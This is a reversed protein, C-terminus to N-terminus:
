SPIVIKLAKKDNNKLANVLTNWEKRRRALKKFDGAEDQSLNNMMEVSKGNDLAKEGAIFLSRLAENANTDRFLRAHEYSFRYDQPYKKEAAEIEEQVKARDNTGASAVKDRIAKLEDEPNQTVPQSQSAAGGGANAQKQSTAATNGKNNTNSSTLVLVLWLTLGFALLGILTLFLISGLKKEKSSLEPEPEGPELISTRGLPSVARPLPAPTVEVANVEPKVDVAKAGNVVPGAPSPAAQATPPPATAAVAPPITAAMQTIDPGSSAAPQAAGKLSEGCKWCFTDSAKVPSACRVCSVTQVQQRRGDEKQEPSVAAAAKLGGNQPHAASTPQSPAVVAPPTAVAPRVPPAPAKVPPAEQSKLGVRLRGSEKLKWGGEVRNVVAPYLILVEGPAPNECHFHNEYTDYFEQRNTFRSLGPLLISNEKGNPILVFEGDEDAVLLDREYSFRLKKQAKVKDLYDQVSAPFGPAGGILEECIPCADLSTKFTAGFIECGHEYLPAGGSFEKLCAPCGPQPVGDQTMTFNKVDAPTESELTFTYCRHCLYRKSISRECVPCLGEAKVDPDLRWFHECDSCYAWAPKAEELASGAFDMEGLVHNKNECKIPNKRPAPFSKQHTPCYIRM